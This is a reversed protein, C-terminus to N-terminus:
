TAQSYLFVGPERPEHLAIQWGSGRATITLRMWNGESCIASDILLKGGGVQLLKCLLWISLDGYWHPWLRSHM